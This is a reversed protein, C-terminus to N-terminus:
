LCLCVRLCVCVFLCVPVFRTLFFPHFIYFTSQGGLDFVKFTVQARGDSLQADLNLERVAEELEDDDVLPPTHLLAEAAAQAAGAAPLTSSPNTSSHTSSHQKHAQEAEAKGGLQQHQTPPPRGIVREGANKDLDLVFQQQQQTLSSVDDGDTLHSAGSEVAQGHQEAWMKRQMAVRELRAAAERETRESVRAHLGSSRALAASVLHRLVERTANDETSQLCRCHCSPSPALSPARTRM